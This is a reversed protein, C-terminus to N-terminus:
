PTPLTEGFREKYAHLLDRKKDEASTEDYLGGLNIWAGRQDPDLAIVRELHAIAEAPRAAVQALFYHALVTEDWGKLARGCLKRAPAQKHAYADVGCALALLGPADPFKDLQTTVLERAFRPESNMFKDYAVKFTRYYAPEREAPVGVRAGDPPLGWLRRAELVQEGLRAAETGGKTKGLAREARSLAGITWSFRALELWGVDADPGHKRALRAEAEDLLAHVKADDPADSQALVLANWMPLDSDNADLRMARPCAAVAEEGGVKHAALRCALTQVEATQPFASVIPELESWAAAYDGDRLAEVANNYALVAAHPLNVRVTQEGTGPAGGGVVGGPSSAGAGGSVLSEGGLIAVLNQKEEVLWEDWTANARVFTLLEAEAAARAKRAEPSDGVIVRLRLGREIVGADAESFTSAQRDYFPGMIRAEGREHLAGLTHGWEHLFVVLEKHAKRAAYLHLRAQESMQDYVKAIQRAEMADNMDRVVFHRGLMEAMGLEHHSTTFTAPAAVLGIVWDVDMGEDLRALEGLIVGLSEGPSTRKWDVFQVDLMVGYAAATYSNAARILNAAHDKWHPRQRYDQDVYVRARFHRPRAGHYAGPIELEAPLYTMAVSRQAGAPTKWQSMSSSYFCGSLLLLLMTVAAVLPTLLRREKVNGVQMADM